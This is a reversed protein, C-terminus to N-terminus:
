NGGKKKERGVNEQPPPFFLVYGDAAIFSLSFPSFNKCVLVRFFKPRKQWFKEPRLKSCGTKTKSKKLELVSQGRSRALRCRAAVACM